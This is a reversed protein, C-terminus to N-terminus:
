NSKIIQDIDFYQGAIDILDEKETESLNDFIYLLEGIENETLEEENEIRDLIGDVVYEFGPVDKAILDLLENTRVAKLRMVLKKNKVTITDIKIPKDSFMVFFDEIIYSMDEIKFTEEDFLSFIGEVMEDPLNIEGVTFESFNMKLHKNYNIFEVNAKIITKFYQNNKGFELPFCIIAQENIEFYPNGIILDFDKYFSTQVLNDNSKTDLLHSIIKNLELEDLQVSQSFIAAVGKSELLENLEDDSKLQESDKLKFVNSTDELKNFNLVIKFEFKDDKKSLGIDLLGEISMLEKISNFDESEAGLTNILKDPSISIIQKRLNYSGFSEFLEEIFLNFDFEDYHKSIEPGIRILWKLPLNGINVKLVKLQYNNDVIGLSRFQILIRSKYVITDYFFHVGLNISIKDKDFSVWVKQVRITDEFNLLYGVEYSLNEEFANIILEEITNNITDQSIYIGLEKNEVSPSIINLLQDEITSEIDFFGSNGFEPPTVSKYILAVTIVATLVLIFVLRFITKFVWKFLRM